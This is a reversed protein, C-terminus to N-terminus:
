FMQFMEVNILPWTNLKQLHEVNYNNYRGGNILEQQGDIWLKNMYQRGTARTLEDEQVGLKRSLEDLKQENDLLWFWDLISPKKKNDAYACNNSAQSIQIVWFVEASIASFTHFCKTCNIDINRVNM